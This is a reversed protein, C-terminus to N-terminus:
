PLFGGGLWSKPCSSGRLPNGSPVHQVRPTSLWASGWVQVAQGLVTNDVPCSLSGRAPLLGVLQPILGVATQCRGRKM